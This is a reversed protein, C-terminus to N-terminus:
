EGRNKGKLVLGYGRATLHGVHWPGNLELDSLFTVNKACLGFVGPKIEVPVFKSGDEYGEIKVRSVSFEYDELYFGIDEFQRILGDRIKQAALETAAPCDPQDLDAKIRKYQAPDQQLILAPIRYPRLKPKVSKQFVGGTIQMTLTEGYHGEYLALVNMAEARLLASAPGGIAYILVQGKRAGFRIKALGKVPLGDERYHFLEAPFNEPAQGALIKRAQGAFVREEPVSISLTLWRM